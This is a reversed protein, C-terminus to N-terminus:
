IRCDSLAPKHCICSFSFNWCPRSQMSRLVSAANVRLKYCSGAYLLRICRCFIEEQCVMHVISLTKRTCLIILLVRVLCCNPKLSCKFAGICLSRFRIICNHAGGDRCGLYEKIRKSNILQEGSIFGSTGWYTKVGLERSTLFTQATGEVGFINTM